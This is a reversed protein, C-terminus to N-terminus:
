PKECEKLQGKSIRKQVLLLRAETAPELQRSLTQALIHEIECPWHTWIFEAADEAISPQASLLWRKVMVIDADKRYNALDRLSASILPYNVDGTLKTKKLQSVSLQRRQKNSFFRELAFPNSMMLAKGQPSFRRKALRNSIFDLGKPAFEVDRTNRFVVEAVAFEQIRQDKSYFLPKILDALEHDSRYNNMLLDMMNEHFQLLVPSAGGVSILYPGDSSKQIKPDIKTGVRVWDSFSILFPVGIDKESLRVVGTSIAITSGLARQTNGFLIRKIEFVAKMPAPYPEKLEVIVVNSLNTKMKQSPPGSEPRSHAALSVLGLYVICAITALNTRLRNRNQKKITM